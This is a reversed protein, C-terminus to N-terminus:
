GIERFVNYRKLCSRFSLNDFPYLYNTKLPNRGSINKVIDDFSRVVTVTSTKDHDMIEQYISETSNCIYLLTNRNYMECDLLVTSPVTIVTKANKIIKETPVLSLIHDQHQFIVNKKSFEQVLQSYFRKSKLWQIEVPHMKWIFTENRYKKFTKHLTVYFRIREAESYAQWNLNTLILIYDGTREQKYKKESSFPPYGILTHKESIKYFSLIEDSYSPPLFTDDYMRTKLPHCSYNIGLQFLGHQLEFIPIKLVKALELLELSYAHSTCCRAATSIVANFSHLKRKILNVDQEFFCNDYRSLCSRLFENADIRNSHLFFDIEKNLSVINEILNIQYSASLILLLNVKNKANNTSILM